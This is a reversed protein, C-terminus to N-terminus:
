CARRVKCGVQKYSVSLHGNKKQGPLPSLVPSRNDTRYENKIDALEKSQKRIAAKLEESQLSKLLESSLFEERSKVLLDILAQRFHEHMSGEHSNGKWKGEHTGTTAELWVLNGSCSRLQWEMIISTKFKAFITPGRVQEVSILKPILFYSADSNLIDSNTKHSVKVDAFVNRALNETHYVLNEGLPTVITDPGQQFKGKSNKLGDTIFLEVAIYLKEETETLNIEYFPQKYTLTCNITTIQISLFLLIIIFKNRSRM